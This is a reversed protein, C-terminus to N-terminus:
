KILTIVKFMPLYLSIVMGGIVAGMGVLMIPELLATLSEVKASVESEYFEAVKDLLRDVEGTDEGVAVMQTLMPPF